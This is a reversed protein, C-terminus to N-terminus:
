HSPDSYVRHLKEIETNRYLCIVDYSLSLSKRRIRNSSTLWM